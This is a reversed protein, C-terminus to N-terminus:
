QGCAADVTVGSGRFCRQFRAYDALDVDHDADLDAPRCAAAAPADPEQLCNIIRAADAADVDGDLDFDAPATAARVTDFRLVRSNNTDVILLNLADDLAVGSPGFLGDADSAFPGLGHNFQETTFSGLQGYVRDPLLPDFLPDRYVLVRHNAADVVYLAGGGDVFLDIPLHLGLELGGNDPSGSTFDPQGLVADATTDTALPDDFRLVRNNQWDAIYLNGYADLAIGICYLLNDASPTTGHNGTSDNNKARSTFSGYQGFVADAFPKNVSPATYHLVRSNGSDSIWVDGDRAIIRGPYLLSDPLAADPNEGRRDGQGLNPANSVFDPQGIVLDAIGDTAPPNDFRLVRSNYADAVWLNGAADVSLGQPLFFADARTGVSLGRNPANSVFDGQGIVLDAAEGNTFGAASPWSLVRNNDADAVYIRGGVAIAVHAANSLAFNAATPSGDPQNPDATTFNVQGLVADATTDLPAAGAAGALLMGLAPACLGM